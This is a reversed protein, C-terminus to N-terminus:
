KVPQLCIKFHEAPFIYAWFKEYNEPFKNFLRHLFFRRFSRHFTIERKVLRFKVGTQWTPNGGIYGDFAFYNFRSKHQPVNAMWSTHHPVEINITGEPCCIRHLEEVAVSIDGLHELVHHASIEEFSNDAFPYPAKMLDHVVDPKHLPDIDLTVSGPHAKGASGIVLRKKLGGINIQKSM